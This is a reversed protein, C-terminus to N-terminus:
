LEVGDYKPVTVKQPCLPDYIIVLEDGTKVDGCFRVNTYKYTFSHQKSDSDKFSITINYAKRTEYKGRSGWSESIDTVVGVSEEGIKYLRTKIISEQVKKFILLPFFLFGFVKVAFIVELTPELDLGDILHIRFLWQLDILVLPIICLLCIILM